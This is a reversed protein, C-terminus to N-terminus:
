DPVPSGSGASPNTLHFPDSGAFLGFQQGITPVAPHTRVPRHDSADRRQRGAPSVEPTDPHVVGPIRRDGRIRIAGPRDVAGAAAQEPPERTGAGPHGPGRTRGIFLAIVAGPHVHRGEDIEGGSLLREGASDDAIRMQDGAPPNPDASLTCAIKLGTGAIRSM